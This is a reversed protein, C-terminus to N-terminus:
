DQKPMVYPKRSSHQKILEFLKFNLSSQLQFDNGKPPYGIVLRTSQLNLM